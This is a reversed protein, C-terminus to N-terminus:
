GCNPVSSGVRSFEVVAESRNIRRVITRLMRGVFLLEGLVSKNCRSAQGGAIRSGFRSVLCNRTKRVRIKSFKTGVTGETTVTCRRVIGGVSGLSVRRPARCPGELQRILNSTGVISPTRPPLKKALRRRALEKM